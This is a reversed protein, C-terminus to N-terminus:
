GIGLGAFFELVRGDVRVDERDLARQLTVGEM